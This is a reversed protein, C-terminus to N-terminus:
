LETDFSILISADSALNTHALAGVINVDKIDLVIPDITVFGVTHRAMAADCHTGSMGQGYALGSKVKPGVGVPRSLSDGPDILL